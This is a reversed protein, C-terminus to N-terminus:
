TKVTAPPSERELLKGVEGLEEVLLRLIDDVSVIGLLKGEGDVVPLRRFTGSRMIGLAEEIPTQESVVRPAPTMLDKVQADQLDQGAAVCRLVLDRDTVIGVPEKKSNLVVLSGVGRQLMRDAIAPVKEDLNAFDVERQCLRGVTM